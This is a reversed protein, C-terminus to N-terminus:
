RGNNANLVVRWQSGRAEPNREFYYGGPLNRMRLKNLANAVKQLKKQETDDANIYGAKLAFDFTDKVFLWSSACQEHWPRAMAAAQELQVDFEEIQLMTDDLFGELGAAQLIGGIVASWDAFGAIKKETFM